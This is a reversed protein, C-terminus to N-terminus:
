TGNAELMPGTQDWTTKNKIMANLITLLKRMCAVIAVKKAKGREILREYFAKIVPNTRTARLTGMFLVARLNSRGGWTSRTGRFTGSDRNLPAVGVLASIKKRNLKGLEPLSSVITMVTVKGVGPVTLLIEVDEKWFECERLRSSIDDDTDRLRKKMYAIHEQLDDRIVKRRTQHLRKQEAAIMDKLQKRRRVLEQLEEAEEGRPPQPSPKMAAGFDALVMADIKDTKALKGAAKAFDRAQRPNVVALPLSAVGCALAVEKEYGGTAEVVILTPELPTLTGMLEELGLATNEVRFSEGSEKIAVDLHNKSVDVGVHM